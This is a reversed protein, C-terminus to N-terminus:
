GKSATQQLCHLVAHPRLALTVAHRARAGHLGAPGRKRGEPLYTVLDPSAVFLWLQHLGVQPPPRSSGYREDEFPGLSLVALRPPLVQNMQLPRRIITVVVGFGPWQARHSSLTIPSRFPRIPTVQHAAPATVVCVLVSTGPLAVALEVPAASDVTMPTALSSLLIGTLSTLSPRRWKTHCIVDSQRRCSFRIDVSPHVLPWDLWCYHVASNQRWQWTQVVTDLPILLTPTPSIM